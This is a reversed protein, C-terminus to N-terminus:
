FLTVIEPASKFVHTAGNALLEDQTHAGSTVGVIFKARAAYAAKMDSETDGVVIISDSSITKQRLTEYRTISRLILDPAPRGNDVEDSAVSLDIEGRWNLANIISDVIRRPFGSTLAVGIGKGRLDRFLHNVGPIEVLEGENVMELYKLIFRDHAREAQTQNGDCLTRFVDIKRQGMTTNVYNTMLELQESDRLVGEHIMAEQFAKVVLGDDQATTGAIDFIVLEIAAM